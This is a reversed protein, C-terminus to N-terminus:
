EALAGSTWSEGKTWTVCTGCNVTEECGKEVEMKGSPWGDDGVGPGKCIYFNNGGTTEQTTCVAYVTNNNGTKYCFGTNPSPPEWSGELYTKLDDEIVTDDGVGYLNKEEPYQQNDAYYAAFAKDLNSLAASRSINRSRRMAFGLGAVSIGILVAMIAMVTLLEVLTFGKEHKKM